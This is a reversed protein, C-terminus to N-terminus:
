EVRWARTCEALPFFQLQHGGVFAARAGVCVGLAYGRPTLCSVVDGRQAHSPHQGCWNRKVAEDNFILDVGGAARVRRMNALLSAGRYDAALDEGLLERLWDAAFFGCNNESWSFARGRRNDIFRSLREPWDCPRSM